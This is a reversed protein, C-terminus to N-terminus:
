GKHINTKQLQSTHGDHHLVFHTYQSRVRQIRNKQKQLAQSHMLSDITTGCPSYDKHVTGKTDRFITCMLKGISKVFKFNESVRHIRIDTSWQSEKDRLHYHFIWARDGTIISHQFDNDEKRYHKLIEKCMDLRKKIEETLM